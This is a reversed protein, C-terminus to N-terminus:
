STEHTGDKRQHKIFPLYGQEGLWFRVTNNVGRTTITAGSLGDIKYKSNTDSPDVTGKIVQIRVNGDPGYAMKGEWQEKWSPNDVEGGLGPTEGHDYYTIGRITELDGDLALFGYMTSWLGKGYIPFIYREISDGSQVAYVPMYKPQKKLDAIDESDPIAQTLQPNSAMTKVDLTKSEIVQRYTEEPVPEGTDLNIVLTEIRENFVNQLDIGPEYLQGAQLINSLKDLEQNRVQRPKLGVALASVIVACVLCVGLTVIIMKKTSDNQM